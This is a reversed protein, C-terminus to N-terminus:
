SPSSSGRRVQRRSRACSPPAASSRGSRARGAWGRPSRTRRRPIDNGHLPYCVELRLTDRAGLGCPVAGRAVVADWCSSPTRRPCMLEVGLEGTYGTRNVMVEVGDIEGMAHTFPKAEPLGLREISRPGQVALLAYEDSADRVESGRIEREKLWAYAADRNGRQRRPPLPAPRDPLRDPRRRHRGPREDAAHVASGGRRAQRPRELATVAAARPRQGRSTSSAWTRSTSSAATAACRATSRSSARTSSPCRGAPSRCWAREPQLTAATSRRRCSPRCAVSELPQLFCSAGALRPTPVPDGLGVPCDALLAHACM